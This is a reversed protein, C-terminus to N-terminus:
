HDIINSWKWLQENVAKHLKINEINKCSNAIESYRFVLDRLVKVDDM